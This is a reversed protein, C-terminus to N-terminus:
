MDSALKDWNKPGHKSSTPYSPAKVDTSSDGLVAAKMAEDLPTDKNKTSTINSPDNSELTPWKKPSLKELTIEIKSATINYSSKAPEIPEYLPALSFDYTSVLGTPFSISISREQIDVVAKDKPVGKALLSFFIKNQNQYWDQKIKSPPTQ